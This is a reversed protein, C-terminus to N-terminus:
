RDSFSFTIPLSRCTEKKISIEIVYRRIRKQSNMKEKIEDAKMFMRYHYQWSFIIIIIVFFFTQVNFNEPSEHEDMMQIGITEQRKLYHCTDLQQKKHCGWWVQRTEIDLVSTLFLFFSLKIRSPFFFTMLFLHVM